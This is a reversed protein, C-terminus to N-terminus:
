REMTPDPLFSSRRRGAHSGAELDHDHHDAPHDEDPHAPHSRVGRPDARPVLRVDERVSGDVLRVARDVVGRVAALEHTVIVMTVGQHALGALVEVLAHQNDEDVGATPM